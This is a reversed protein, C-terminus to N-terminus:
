AIHPGPHFLLYTLAIVLHVFPPYNGSLEWYRLSTPGPTDPLYNLAYTQHLAMDWVPPRTDRLLWVAHLVWLLISLMLLLFYDRRVQFDEVRRQEETFHSIPSASAETM